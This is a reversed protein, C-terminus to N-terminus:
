IFSGFIRILFNLLSTYAIFSIALTAISGIIRWLTIRGSMLVIGGLSVAVIYVPTFIPILNISMLGIILGLIVSVNTNKIVKLRQLFFAWFATLCIVPIFVLFIIHPFAFWHQPLNFITSFFRQVQYFPDVM